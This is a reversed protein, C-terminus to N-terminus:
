VKLKLFGERVKQRTKEDQIEVEKDFISLGIHRDLCYLCVKNYEASTESLLYTPPDATMTWWEEFSNECLVCIKKM